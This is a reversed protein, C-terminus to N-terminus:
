FLFNVSSSLEINHTRRKDNLFERNFMYDRFDISWTLWDTVVVRYSSAIVPTFSSSGAFKTIGGGALLYIGSHFKYRTGYFSKGPFLNYGVLLNYHSFRRDSDKLFSRDLIEEFTAKGVESRVYNAQLLTRNALHYSGTFGVVTNASFEEVALTGVYSGLEYSETDIVAEHIQSQEIVPDIIKIPKIEEGGDLGAIALLPSFSFFIGVLIPLIPKTM